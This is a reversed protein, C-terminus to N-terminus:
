ISWFIQECTPEAQNQLKSVNKNPIYTPLYTSSTNQSNEPSTELFFFIRNLNEPLLYSFMIIKNHKELIM